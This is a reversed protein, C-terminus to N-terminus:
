GTLRDAPDVPDASDIPSADDSTANTPARDFATICAEIALVTWLGVTLLGWYARGAVLQVFPLAAFPALKVAMNMDSRLRVVVGIGLLIAVAIPAPYGFAAAEGVWGVGGTGVLPTESGVEVLFSTVARAHLGYAAVVLATAAFWWRRDVRQWVSWAVGGVLLPFALERFLCASVVAVLAVRPWNCRWAAVVVGVIPAVWFEVVLFQDFWVDAQRSRAISAYLLFILPTALTARSRFTLAVAGLATVVCWAAWWASPPILSLLWFLTPLRFARVSEAPGNVDRLASDMAPYYSEGDRMSVLTAKYIAQDAARVSGTSPVAAAFGIALAITVVIAAVSQRRSDSRM